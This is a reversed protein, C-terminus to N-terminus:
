PVPVVEASFALKQCEAPVVPPPTPVDKPRALWLLCYGALDRMTDELSENVLAPSKQLSEIREIKDSMRCLIATGPDLGPCLKPENWASSGYDNNKRLLLDILEVGLLAIRQQATGHNGCCATEVHRVHQSEASSLNKIDSM